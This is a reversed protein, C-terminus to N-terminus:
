FLLFLCVNQTVYDLKLGTVAIFLTLTTVCKTSMLNQLSSQVVSTLGVIVISQLRDSPPLHDLIFALKKGFKPIWGNNNQLKAVVRFIERFEM